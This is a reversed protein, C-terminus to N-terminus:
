KTGGHGMGLIVLSKVTIGIFMFFQVLLSNMMFKEIKTM